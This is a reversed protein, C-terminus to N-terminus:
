KFDLTKSLEQETYGWKVNHPEFSDDFMEPLKDDKKTFGALKNFEIEDKLIQTGLAVVDDTTLSAGLQANLLDVILQVGNEHDLVPFAVFLCLGAADIAATAIQLNRSVEVNNGKKLPDESGGVSLINPAVAYGATHDAGQPSTAYTVGVGKTARPDYAPLSQRKVVPVRDIGYAKGTFAAGNGIIKGLASGKGVEELLEIAKKGDGWPVVGAEMAIGITVGMEITDLGYEDSLKDLVAIDDLDKIMTNAGFAWITEYEFGSTLYNGDKDNYVQSCKIVCGPHCGESVVGKRETITESLKEGSIDHAHEFRGERFNKTPFAGAENIINVLVATGFAPLGEGSVPHDTLAKSWIKNAATFADKDAIDVRKSGADDIIIAKINKSGLVAGLGGRGFARGPRGNPDALQMSASIMLQEGAQGVCIVGTKGYKEWLKSITENTGKGKLDGAPIIEVSDKKIVINFWKDDEPKDELVIAKIGMRAIKQAALGGANSEKIGETLPSKAGASLRGSNAAGTGALLGPAFVLKNHKGLPHCTAPVEKLIMRSTFARGGLGAFEEDPESYNFTREKTNIRIIKSM